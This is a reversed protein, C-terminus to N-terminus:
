KALEYIAEAYIKSSLILADIDMFEDVQHCMDKQNPMNAGFAVMNPFARAFTGGGIAIPKLNQHTKENFIKTLTQVLYGDKPVYLPAQESTFKIEIDPFIEALTEFKTKIEELLTTVPVRLNFGIELRNNKYDIFGVNSTLIGSEDEIKTDSFFKPSHINFLDLEYLKRLFTYENELLNKDLNANLFEVLKTIANEGLDPHAAHAATGTFEFKQVDGSTKDKLTISCYKPVVNLANHNCDIDLIEQNPISFPHTLRISLMGKEAYICPFDADPSFGISPTEEGIKKYYHICKWDEEENLGLILRVRKNLKEGSDLIAKMAYLSAVVPGKDDISGRGYIKNERIQAEFPPSSWGDELKAPVVDLHGVIGVMEEGEGFEIYGCYGDLNKTRFGLKEALSLTYDLANKCAEGFPMGADNTQTSVSPFEILESVTQLMDDKLNEIVKDFMFVEKNM